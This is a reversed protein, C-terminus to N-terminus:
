SRRPYVASSSGTTGPRSQERWSFCFCQRPTLAPVTERLAHSATDLTFVVQDRFDADGLGEDMLYVYCRLTFGPDAHGLWEQVSSCGGINPCNPM